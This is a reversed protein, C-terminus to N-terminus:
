ARSCVKTGANGTWCRGAARCRTPVGARSRRAQRAPADADRARRGGAVALVEDLGGDLRIEADHFRHRVEFRRHMEIGFYIEDDVDAPLVDLAKLDFVAGDVVDHEVLRARGAAARENLGKGLRHAHLDVLKGLEAQEGFVGHLQAAAARHEHVARDLLRLFLARAHFINGRPERRGDDFVGNILDDAGFRGVFQASWIRTCPPVKRLSATRRQKSSSVPLCTTRGPMAPSIPAKPAASYALSFTRPALVTM